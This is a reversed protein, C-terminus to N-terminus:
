RTPSSPASLEILPGTRFAAIWLYVTGALGILLALLACAIGNDGTWSGAPLGQATPNAIVASVGADALAAAGAAALLWLSIWVCLRRTLRRRWIAVLIFVASGVLLVLAAYKAALPDFASTTSRIGAGLAASFPIGTCRGFILPAGACNVTAWPLVLLAVIELLACATLAGAAPLRSRATVLPQGSTSASSGARLRAVSLFLALCAIFSLVIGACALFFGPLLQRQSTVDLGAIGLDPALVIEPQFLAGLRSTALGTVALVWVTYAIVALLSVLRDRRAWLLPCILAGAVTLLSWVFAGAVDRVDGPSLQLVARHTQGAVTATGVASIWPMWASVAVVLAAVSALARPLLWGRGAATRPRVATHIAPNTSM